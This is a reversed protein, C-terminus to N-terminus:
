QMLVLKRSASEAGLRFRLFYVGNGAPRGDEGRLDWEVSHRGPRAVGRDLMRVLRGNVDFVGIEYTEGDHAAPIAFTTRAQRVAPNPWPAAFEIATIPPAPPGEEVDVFVPNNFFGTRAADHHFQPWPPPGNPSFPFNYDWM